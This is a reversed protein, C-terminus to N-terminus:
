REQLRHLIELWQEYPQTYGEFWYSGVDALWRAMEELSPMVPSIPTGHSVNEYLQYHTAEEPSWEPMYDTPSPRGGGWLAYGYIDNREYDYPGERDKARLEELERVTDPRWGQCWKKSEMDWEELDSSYSYGWLEMDKGHEDTPHKWDPSVKRLEIGMVLTGGAVHFLVYHWKASTGMPSGMGSISLSRAIEFVAKGTHSSCILM